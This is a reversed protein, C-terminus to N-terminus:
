KLNRILWFKKIANIKNSKKNNTLGVDIKIKGIVKIKKNKLLVKLTLFLNWNLKKIIAEQIANMNM